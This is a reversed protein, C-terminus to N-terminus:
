HRVHAILAVGERSRIEQMQGFQSFVHELEYTKCSILAIIHCLTIFYFSTIIPLNFSLHLSKKKGIKLM